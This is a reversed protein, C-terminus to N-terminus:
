KYVPTMSVNQAGSPVTINTAASYPDDLYQAGNGEWRIFKLTEGNNGSLTRPTSVPSPVNVNILVKTTNRVEALTPTIWSELTKQISKKCELYYIACGIPGPWPCPPCPVAVTIVTSVARALVKPSWIAIAYVQGDPTGPDNTCDPEVCGSSPCDASSYYALTSKSICPLQSSTRFYEAELAKGYLADGIQADSPLKVARRPLIFPFSPRYSMSAGSAGYDRGVANNHLDMETNRPDTQPAGSEHADTFEKAYGKADAISTFYWGTRSMILANWLSHRLANAKGADTGSAGSGFKQDVIETAKDAAEKTNNILLPYKAMVKIEDSNPTGATVKGLGGQEQTQQHLATLIEYRIASEYTVLIDEFNEIVEQESVGPFDNLIPQLDGDESLVSRLDPYRSTVESAIDQMIEVKVGLPAISTIAQGTRAIESELMEETLGADIVSQPLRSFFAVSSRAVVTKGDLHWSVSEGSFQVSFAGSVIGEEFETPQNVTGNSVANDEGVPINVIFDNDNRYAFWATYDGGGNDYVGSLIPEIRSRCVNASANSSATSTRGNLTWVLNNGDFETRFADSIKGPLFTTPQGRDETGGSFKNNDGIPIRVSGSNMNEYGYIATYSGDCNDVVNTLFPSVSEGACIYEVLNSSATATKGDLAWVLNDGNFDVTFVDYHRGPLFVTPQGRDDTGGAFYNNGGIPITVSTDATNSYGYHATYSGGCNDVVYERVPKVTAASELSM